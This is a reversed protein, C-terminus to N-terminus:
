AEGDECLSSHELELTPVDREGLLGVYISCGETLEPKPTAPVLKNKLQDGTQKYEFAFLAFNPNPDGEIFEFSNPLATVSYTTTNCTIFVNHLKDDNYANVADSVTTDLM